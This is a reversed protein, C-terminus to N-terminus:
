IVGPAYQECTLELAEHENSVDVPPTIIRYVVGNAVVRMGAVVDTRHRMIIVHSALPQTHQITWFERGSGPTVNMWVTAVQEWTVDGGGMGDAAKVPREIRGRVNLRGASLSM